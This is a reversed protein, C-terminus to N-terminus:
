AAEVSPAQYKKMLNKVTGTPIAGKGMWDQLKETDLTVVAPDKMPNYTGVVDLFKGDRPAQSDAVIIRYFPQKKRGMRTLRIKVAM